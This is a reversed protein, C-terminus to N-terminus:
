GCRPSATWPPWNTPSPGRSPPTARARTSRRTRWTRTRFPRPSRETRTPSSSTATPPWAPTLGKVALPFTWSNAAQPSRLVINEKFGEALPVLEVDTDPLVAAYTVTGDAAVTPQAKSAGRLAYALSRGAGFDVSALQQDTADPAFEIDLSNARQQLRGDTDETLRSDIPKWTGDAAKFNTRGSFHRVTTSGDANVYFDSTATSKKADRKSTRADFSKANGPAAGSTALEPKDTHREFPDLEGKGKGPKRGADGEASTADSSAHHGKGRATGGQQDPTDLPNENAWRWLGSLSLEPMRLPSLTAGTAMATETTLM